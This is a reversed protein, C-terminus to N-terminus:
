GGKSPQAFLFAISSGFLFQINDTNQLPHSCQAECNETKQRLNGRLFHDKSRM